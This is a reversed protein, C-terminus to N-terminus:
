LPFIQLGANARLSKAPKTLKVIDRRMRSPPMVSASFRSRKKLSGRMLGNKDLILRHFMRRRKSSRAVGRTTTPTTFGCIKTRSHATTVM